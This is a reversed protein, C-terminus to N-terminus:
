GKLVSDNTASRQNRQHHTTAWRQATEAVAIVDGATSGYGPYRSDGVIPLAPYIHEICAGESRVETCSVRGAAMGMASLQSELKNALKPPTAYMVLRM